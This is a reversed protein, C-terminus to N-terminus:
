PLPKSPDFNGQADTQYRKGNYIIIPNQTQQNYGLTSDVIYDNFDQGLGLINAQSQYQKQRTQATTNWASMLEKTALALEKAAEPSIVRGESARALTNSFKQFYSQTQNALTLEGERVASDPDLNKVLIYLSKLQNTASGPNAIVQDAILSATGGKVSQNIISDSQFKSTIQQLTIYQRTSLGTSGVGAAAISRKRNADENQYDNFTGKYGHSKAYEYEKVSAPANADSVGMADLFSQNSLTGQPLGMIREANAKGKPDNAFLQALGKYGSKEVIKNFNDKAADNMKEGLTVLKETLGLKRDVQKEVAARDLQSFNMLHDVYDQKLAMSQQLVTAQKLLTKNRVTTLAQVQSETALGGAKEIETRLDDETGDMVNKINMLKVQEQSLSEGPLGAPITADAFAKAFEQEFTMQTSTPSLASNIQDYLMKVAPNMSAYQDFFSKMPDEAPAQTNDKFYSDLATAAAAGSTPAASEKNANYASLYKQALEQNQTASGSYAQIGFQSALQQRNTYSSDTGAMNLLDVISGSAPMALAPQTQAQQGTQQTQAVPQTQTQPQTNVAGYSTNQSFPDPAPTTAQTVGPQQTSTAPAQQTTGTALQGTMNGTTYYGNLTTPTSSYTATSEVPSATANTTSLQTPSLGYSGLQSAATTAIRSGNDYIEYTGSPTLTATYAM